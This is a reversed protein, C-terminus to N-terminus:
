TSQYIKQNGYIQYKGNQGNFSPIIEYGNTQAGTVGDTYNTPYSDVSFYDGASHTYHDFSVALTAAAQTGIPFLRGEDYFGDRQGNDLLFKDSADVTGIKLTNIKIIDAKDLMVPNTGDFGITRNTM